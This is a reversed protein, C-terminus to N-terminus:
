SRAEPRATMATELTGPAPIAPEVPAIPEVV